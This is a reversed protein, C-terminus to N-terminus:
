RWGQFTRFELGPRAAPQPHVPKRTLAGWELEDTTALTQQLPSVPVELSWFAPREGVELSLNWVLVPLGAFPFIMVSATTSTAAKCPLHCLGIASQIHRISCMFKNLQPKLDRVGSPLSTLQLRFTANATLTANSAVQTSLSPIDQAQHRGANPQEQITLLYAQACKLVAGGADASVFSCGIPGYFDACAAQTRAETAAAPCHGALM